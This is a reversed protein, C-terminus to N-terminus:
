CRRQGCVTAAWRQTTQRFRRTHECVRPAISCAEMGCFPQVDFCVKLLHPEPTFSAMGELLDIQFNKITEKVVDREARVVHDVRHLIDSMQINKKPMYSRGYFGQHRYGTLHLV